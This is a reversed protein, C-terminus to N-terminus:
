EQLSLFTYIGQTLTCTSWVVHGPKVGIMMSPDYNRNDTTDEM